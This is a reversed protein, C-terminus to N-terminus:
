ATATRWPRYTEYEKFFYLSLKVVDKDGNINPRTNRTMSTKLPGSPRESYTLESAGSVGSVLSEASSEGSAESAREM